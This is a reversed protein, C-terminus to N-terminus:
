RTVTRVVTENHNLGGFSGVFSTRVKVEFDGMDALLTGAQNVGTKHGSITAKAITRDAVIGFTTGGNDTDVSALSVNKFASAILYSNLFADTKGTIRVSTVSANLNFDGSGDDAGSYGAFLRSDVFSNALVSGVNGNVFIDSGTIAGDVKLSKLAMGRVPDVGTGDVQIDTAFNGRINITGINPAILTGNGMANATLSSIGSGLDITTGDDVTGMAIKTKQAVTGHAVIDAGNQVNGIVLSGLAEILDIGTGTLNASRANVAKLGSGTISGLDILGNGTGAAKVVEVNLISRSPDTGSLEIREISGRGDFDSDNLFYKVQGPGTLRLRVQDGDADYVTSGNGPTRYTVTNDTSTSALNWYNSSDLASFAKVQAVVQGGSNMGTVTVTYNAGQGSVSAMLPGGATSQWLAIDETGFGSVPASFTVAFKVAPITTPDAQQAFQNIVVTPPMHGGGGPWGWGGGDDADQNIREELPQVALMARRSALRRLSQKSLCM